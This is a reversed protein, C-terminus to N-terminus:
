FELNRGKAHSGTDIQAIEVVLERIELMVVKTAFITDSLHAM